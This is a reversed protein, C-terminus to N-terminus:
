DALSELMGASLISRAILFPVPSSSPTVASSIASSPKPGSPAATRTAHRVSLLFRVAESIRLTNLLFPPLIPLAPVTAHINTMSVNLEMAIFARMRASDLIGAMGFVKNKPLKSVRRAVECMADLPNTVVIITLDRSHRCVKSICDAVIEENKKLLDDRSMGPKRALGATMVCISSGATEEYNNAGVIKMDFGEVAGSQYMDLGKGQPVGEVVDVLVVDGLEQEVIRQATTAGVNGAGIVTIKTRM